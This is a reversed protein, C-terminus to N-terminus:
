LYPAVLIALIATISVIFGAVIMRQSPPNLNRALLHAIASAAFTLGTIITGYLTLSLMLTGDGGTFGHQMVGVYLSGVTIVTLAIGVAILINLSFYVNRM